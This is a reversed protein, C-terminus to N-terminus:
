NSNARRSRRGTQPHASISTKPARWFEVVVPEFGADQVLRSAGALAGPDDNAFHIAVRDGQNFSRKFSSNIAMALLMFCL